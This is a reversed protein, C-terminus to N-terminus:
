LNMPLTTHLSSLLTLSRVPRGNTIVGGAAGVTYAYRGSLLSTRTPSCLPQVYYMELRCGERALQDITPTAPAGAVASTTQAGSPNPGSVANEHYGVDNFGYDDALIFFIHPQAPGTGAPASSPAALLAAAAAAAVARLRM